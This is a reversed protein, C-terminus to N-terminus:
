NLKYRELIDCYLELNVADKEYVGFASPSVTAQIAELEQDFSMLTDIDQSTLGYNTADSTTYVIGENEAWVSIQSESLQKKSNLWKDRGDIIKNAKECIQELEENFVPYRGSYDGACWYTGNIDDYYLFFIWQEGENMPTMGSFTILQNLDKVVGYRQSLKITKESLEGKLVKSVSIMNTSVADVIIDKKFENSYEYKLEQQTNQSFEGVVILEAAGDLETINSHIIRDGAVQIVEMDDTPYYIQTNCASMFLLLSITISAFTKKM